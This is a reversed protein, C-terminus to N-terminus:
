GGDRGHEKLAEELMGEEEVSLFRDVDEVVVLGSRLRVTGEVANWGPWIAEPSDMADPAIETLEHVSDVMLAVMRRSSRVIVLQDNVGIARSAAGTRQRVDFVPAVVGHVDIVGHVLSPGRPLPTVDVARVVREVRSVSIGYQRGDVEFVLLRDARNM